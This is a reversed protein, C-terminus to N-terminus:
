SQDGTAKAIAARVVEEQWGEIVLRGMIGRECKLIGQLVELLDPAAAILRADAEEISVMRIAPDGKVAPICISNNVVGVPAKMQPHNWATFIRREVHFGGLYHPHEDTIVQWPGPTHKTEM